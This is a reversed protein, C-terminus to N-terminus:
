NAHPGSAPLSLFSLFMESTHKTSHFGSELPPPCPWASILRSMRGWTFGASVSSFLAHRHSTVSSPCTSMKHNGESPKICFFTQSESLTVLINGMVSWHCHFYWSSRLLQHCYIGYWGTCFKIQTWKQVWLWLLNIQVFKTAHLWYYCSLM